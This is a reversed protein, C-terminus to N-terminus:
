TWGNRDGSAEIGKPPPGPAEGDQPLVRRQGAPDNKFHGKRAESLQQNRLVSFDTQM